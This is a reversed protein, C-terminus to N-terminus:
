LEGMNFLKDDESARPFPLNQWPENTFLRNDLSKLDMGHDFCLWVQENRQTALNVVTAYYKPKDPCGTMRGHRYFEEPDGICSTCRTDHFPRTIPVEWAKYIQRGYHVAAQGILLIAGVQKITEM